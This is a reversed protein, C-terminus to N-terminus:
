ALVRAYVADTAEAANEWTMTSAYARAQGAAAVIEGSSALARTLAHEFGDPPDYFFGVDPPLDALAGVRPAVIPVGFSLALLASGSTTTELFPCAVVDAALFYSSVEGDGLRRLVATARELPHVAGEIEARLQPDKCAGAILLYASPNSASVARFADILAPVNKYPEVRGFFLCVTADAPIRLAQRSELRDSTVPYHDLFAPHPIVTADHVTVGAAGLAAVASPSHVIVASAARALRRRVAVDDSTIKQHPLVNHVTWVIRYRLLKAVRLFVISSVYSLRPALKSKGPLKLAYMWHIHLIRRRHRLAVRLLAFATVIPHLVVARKGRPVPISVIRYRGDDTLASYLLTQYPNSERPYVVITATNPSAGM